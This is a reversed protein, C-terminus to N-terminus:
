LHRLARHGFEPFRDQGMGMRRSELVDIQSPL